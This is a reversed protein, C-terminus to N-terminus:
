SVYLCVAGRMSHIIIIHDMMDKFITDAYATFCIKVKSGINSKELVNNNSVLLSTCQSTDSEYQIGHESFIEFYIKELDKVHFLEIGQRKEEFIFSYVTSLANIKICHMDDNGDRTSRKSERM